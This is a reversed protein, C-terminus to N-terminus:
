SDPRADLASRLRDHASEFVAVHEDVPRGELDDVSDLVDDVEEVGTRVPESFEQTSEAVEDADPEPAYESM